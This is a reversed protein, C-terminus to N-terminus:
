RDEPPESISSSANAAESRESEAKMAAALREPEIDWPGIRGSGASEAAVEDTYPLAIDRMDERLRCVAFYGEGDEVFVEAVGLDGDLARTLADRLATLGRRNGVIHADDHWAQQAFLHLYPVAADDAVADDHTDIVPDGRDFAISVAVPNAAGCGIAYKPAM